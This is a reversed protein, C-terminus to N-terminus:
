TGDADATCVFSILAQNAIGVNSAGGGVDMTTTLTVADNADDPLLLAVAPTTSTGLATISSATGSETAVAIDLASTGTTTGLLATITQNLSATMNVITSGDNVVTLVAGIDPAQANTELSLSNFTIANGSFTCTTSAAITTTLTVDTSSNGTLTGGFFVLVVVLSVAASIAALKILEDNKRKRAM